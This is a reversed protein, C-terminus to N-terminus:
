MVMSTTSKRWLIYKSFNLYKSIKEYRFPLMGLRLFTAATNQWIKVVVNETQIQKFILKRSGSTTLSFICTFAFIHIKVKVVERLQFNIKLASKCHSHGYKFELNKKSRKPWYKFFHFFPNEMTNEFHSKAPPSVNKWIFKKRFFGFVESHAWINTTFHTFSSQRLARNDRWGVMLCLWNAMKQINSKTERFPEVFFKFKKWIPSSEGGGGRM